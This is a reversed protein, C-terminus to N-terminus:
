LFLNVFGILYPKEKWETQKFNQVIFFLISFFWAAIKKFDRAIRLSFCVKGNFVRYCDMLNYLIYIICKCKRKNQESYYALLPKNRRSIGFILLHSSSFLQITKIHVSYNVMIFMSHSWQKWQLNCIFYFSLSIRVWVSVRKQFRFRVRVYM